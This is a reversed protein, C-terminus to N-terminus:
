NSCGADLSSTVLIRQGECTGLSCVSGLTRAGFQSSAVPFVPFLLLTPVTGVSWVQAGCYFCTLVSLDNSERKGEWSCNPLSALDLFILCPLSSPTLKRRWISLQSCPRICNICSFLFGFDELGKLAKSSGSEEHPQRMQEPLASYCRSIPNGHAQLM